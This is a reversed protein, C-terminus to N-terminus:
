LGPKGFPIHWQKGRPGTHWQKGRPL